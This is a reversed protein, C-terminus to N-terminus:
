TARPYVCAASGRRLCATDGARICGMPMCVHALNAVLAVLRVELAAGGSEVQTFAVVAFRGELGQALQEHSTADEGSHCM